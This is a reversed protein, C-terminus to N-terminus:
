FEFEHASLEKKNSTTHIEIIKCFNLFMWRALKFNGENDIYSSGLVGKIVMIYTYKDIAGSKHLRMFSFTSLKDNKCLDM